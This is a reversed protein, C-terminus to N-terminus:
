YWNFILGHGELKKNVKRIRYEDKQKSFKVIVSKLRKSPLWHCDETNCFGIKVDLKRFLQLATDELEPNELSGLFADFTFM